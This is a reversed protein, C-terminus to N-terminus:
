WEKCAACVQGSAGSWLQDAASGCEACRVGDPDWRYTVAAPDTSDAGGAAAAGPGGTDPARDASDGDDDAVSDASGDDDDAVSDASGDDDDAVSDASGDDDDAVSDASGHSQGGVFEDLSRDRDM